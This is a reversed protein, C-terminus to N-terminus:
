RKRGEIVAVTDSIDIISVAVAFLLNKVLVQDSTYRDCEKRADKLVAMYDEGDVCLKNHKEMFDYAARFAKKIGSGDDIPVNM